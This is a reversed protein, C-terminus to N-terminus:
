MCAPVEFGSSVIAERRPEARTFLSANLSMNRLRTRTWHARRARISLERSVKPFRRELVSLPRPNGLLRIIQSRYGWWCGGYLPHVCFVQFCLGSDRFRATPRAIGSCSVTNNETGFVYTCSMMRPRTVTDHVSDTATSACGAHDVEVAQWSDALM